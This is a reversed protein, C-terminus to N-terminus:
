LLMPCCFGTKGQRGCHVWNSIFDRLTISESNSTQQRMAQAMICVFGGVAFSANSRLGRRNCNEAVARHRRRHKPKACLSAADTSDAPTIRYWLLLRRALGQGTHTTCPVVVAPMVQLSRSSCHAVPMITTPASLGPTSLKHGQM